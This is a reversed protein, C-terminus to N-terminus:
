LMLSQKSLKPLGIKKMLRVVRKLYSPHDIIDKGLFTVFDSYTECARVESETLSLSMTKEMISILTDIINMCTILPRLVIVYRQDKTELLIRQVEKILDELQAYIAWIAPFIGRDRKSVKIEEKGDFELGDIGTYEKIVNEVSVNREEAITEFFNWVSIKLTLNIGKEM